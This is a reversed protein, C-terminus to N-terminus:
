PATSQQAAIATMPQQFRKMVTYRDGDVLWDTMVVNQGVAEIEIDGDFRRVMKRAFQRIRSSQLMVLGSSTAALIRYDTTAAAAVAAGALGLAIRGSWQEVGVVMSLILLGAFAAAVYPLMLRHRKSMYVVHDIREGDPLHSRVSDYLARQRGKM